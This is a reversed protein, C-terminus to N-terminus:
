NPNNLKKVVFSTLTVGSLVSAAGYQASLKLQQDSTFDISSEIGAKAYAFETYGRDLSLGYTYALSGSADADRITLVARGQGVDSNNGSGNTFTISGITASGLILDISLSNTFTSKFVGGFDLEIVDGAVLTGGTFTYTYGADTIEVESTTNVAVEAASATASVLGEISLVANVGTSDVTVNDGAKVQLAGTDFELGKDATIDVDIDLSENGGDDTETVTVGDGGTIKTDLYAPTTDNSSVAVKEDAGAAALDSLDKESNSGDKFLLTTGADDTKVYADTGGFYLYKTDAITQNATFTNEGSSFTVNDLLHPGVSLVVTTGSPWKIGNSQTTFDTGDEWSLDRIVDTLTFEGSTDQTFGGASILEKKNGRKFTLILPITSFTLANGDNDKIANLVLGTTQTTSTM